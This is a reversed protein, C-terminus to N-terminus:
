VDLRFVKRTLSDNIIMKNHQGRRATLTIYRDPKRADAKRTRKRVQLWRAPANKELTLLARRAYKVHSALPCCASM